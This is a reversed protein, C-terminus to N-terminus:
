GTNLKSPGWKITEEIVDVRDDSRGLAAISSVHCIKKVGSTLAINIVNATGEANIRMMLGRDRKLFSIMAASHYVKHVGTFAQELSPVDLIDGTAREILSNRDDGPINYFDLVEGLYDTQSTSRLLLRVAKKQRLLMATVYAGVLGTAGTILIM